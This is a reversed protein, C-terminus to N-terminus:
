VPRRTAPRPQRAAGERHEHLRRAQHLMTCTYTWTEGNSCTTATTAASTPRRGVCIRREVAVRDMPVPTPEHQHRRVHLHREAAGARAPDLRRTSRSRRAAHGPASRRTSAPPTARRPRAAVARAFASGRPSRAGPERRRHLRDSSITSGRRYAPPTPDRRRRHLDRRARSDASTRSTSVDCAATATNRRRGHLHHRTATASSAVQRPSSTSIRAPQCHLGARARPAGIRRVSARSRRDDGTAAMLTILLARRRM